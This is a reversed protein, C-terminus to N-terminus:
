HDPQDDGQVGVGTPRLLTRASRGRRWAKRTSPLVIEDVGELRRQRKKVIQPEFTGVRDRPVEIEVSGSTKTLVTKSRSGDRINDAGIGLPDHKEYGVHETMEEQLAREIVTKNLQKLLGGPGTLPLGKEKALRVM